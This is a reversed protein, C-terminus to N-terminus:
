CTWRFIGKNYMTAGLRQYFQIAKYNDTQVEWRMRKVNRLQCQRQAEKMLQEGIGKSRYDPVVYLDDLNMFEEGSWISFNWTYSLYGIPVGEEIAIIAGFKGNRYASILNEPCSTVWMQQRHDEALDLILEFLQPIDDETIPRIM